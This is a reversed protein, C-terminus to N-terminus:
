IASVAACVASAAVVAIFCAFGRGEVSWNRTNFSCAVFAGCLYTAIFVAAITILYKM